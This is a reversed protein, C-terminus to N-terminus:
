MPGCNLALWATKVPVTTVSRSLTRREASPLGSRIANWTAPILTSRAQFPVRTSVVTVTAVDTPSQPVGSVSCSRYM